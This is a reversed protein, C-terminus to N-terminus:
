PTLALTRLITEDLVEVSDGVTEPDVERREGCGNFRMETSVGLSM